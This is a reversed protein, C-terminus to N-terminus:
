SDRGATGLAGVENLLPAQAVLRIKIGCKRGMTALIKLADGVGPLKALMPFEEISLVLLPFDRSAHFGRLGRRRRGRRDTWEEGAMLENRAFMIHVAAFIAECCEDTTTAMWDV